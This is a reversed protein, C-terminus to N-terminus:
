THGGGPDSPAWPGTDAVESGPWRKPRRELERAAGALGGRPLLCVRGGSHYASESPAFM